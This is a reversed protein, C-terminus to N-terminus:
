YFFIEIPMFLPRVVAYYAGGIVFRPLFDIGSLAVIFWFIVFLSYLALVWSVAKTLRDARYPLETRKAQVARYIHWCVMCLGMYLSAPIWALYHFMIYSFGDGEKYCDMRWGEGWRSLNNWSFIGNRIDWQLDVAQNLLWYGGLITLLMIGLRHWVPDEPRITWMLAPVALIWLMWWYNVRGYWPRASLIEACSMSADKYAQESIYHHAEQIEAGWLSVLGGLLFIGLLILITKKM